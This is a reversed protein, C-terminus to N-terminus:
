HVPAQARRVIGPVMRRPLFRPSMAQVANMTGTIVVPKGKLMGKVALRACEDASMLKKGKVLKSSGM